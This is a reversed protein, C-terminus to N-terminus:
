IIVAAAIRKVIKRKGMGNRTISASREGELYYLKSRPDYIASEGREDGNRYMGWNENRSPNLM